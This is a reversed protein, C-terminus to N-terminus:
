EKAVTIKLQVTVDRHLKVPVLAEGLARLPDPL